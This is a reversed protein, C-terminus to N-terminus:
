RFKLTRRRRTRKNRRRSRNGGVIVEPPVTISSGKFKVRYKITGGEEDIINEIIGDKIPAGPYM